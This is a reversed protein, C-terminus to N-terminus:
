YKHEKNGGTAIIQQFASLGVARGRRWFLDDLIFGISVALCTIQLLFLWFRECHFVEDIFYQYFYESYFVSAANLKM